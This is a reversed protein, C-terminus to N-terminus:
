SHNMESISEDYDDAHAHKPTPCAPPQDMVTSNMEKFFTTPDKTQEASTRMADQILTASKTTELM